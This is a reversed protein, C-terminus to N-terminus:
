VDASTNARDTFVARLRLNCGLQYSLWQPPIAKFMQQPTAGLELAVWTIGRIGLVIKGYTVNIVRHGTGAVYLPTAM